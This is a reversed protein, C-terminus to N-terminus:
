EPSGLGDTPIKQNTPMIPASAPVLIGRETVIVDMPVDHPLPHITTIAAQAYGVGIITPRPSMAALTRDFFGGGYGLRYCAADFGVVPAIVIDPVVEPGDAPMPINWIGLVLKSGKKWTRFVLPANKQIVIPLAASGGREALSAMWPRLDPEGRFPWYASVSRGSLDGIFDSLRAMIEGAHRRRQDADIALRQEILRRRETKRWAMIDARSFANTM